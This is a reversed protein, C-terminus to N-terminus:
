YLEVVVVVVAQIVVVVEAVPILWVRHVPTVKVPQEVEALVVPLRVSEISSGSRNLYGTAM